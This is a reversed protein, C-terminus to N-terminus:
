IVAVTITKNTEGPAFTLRGSTTAVFDSGAVATDSATSYDVTVSLSSPASLIVSFVAPVTGSNGETVAQDGISLSPLNGATKVVVDVPGSTATVGLNDTAKATLTYNGVAAISWTVNYPSSTAEGVKTSGQFFEVKAIGDSDTAVATLLINTPATFTAGDIPTTIAITPPTNSPANVLISVSTSIS